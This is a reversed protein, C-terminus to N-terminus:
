EDEALSKLYDLGFIFGNQDLRSGDTRERDFYSIRLWHLFIKVTRQQEALEFVLHILEDCEYFLICQNMVEEWRLRPFDVIAYLILKISHMIMKWNYTESITLIIDIFIAINHILVTTSEYRSIYNPLLLTIFSDKLSIDALSKM